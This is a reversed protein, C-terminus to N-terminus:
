IDMTMFKNKYDNITNMLEIFEAYKATTLLKSSEIGSLFEIVYSDESRSSIKIMGSENFIELLVEIVEETVGLASAGRLLNFKGELNNCSYRIM